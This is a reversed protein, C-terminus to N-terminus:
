RINNVTHDEWHEPRENSLPALQMSLKMLICFGTVLRGRGFLNM